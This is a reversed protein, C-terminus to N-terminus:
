KKCTEFTGNLLSKLQDTPTPSAGCTGGETLKNYLDETLTSKTVVNNNGLETALNSKTIVNNNGLETALNSKTIVNNNGLETAL